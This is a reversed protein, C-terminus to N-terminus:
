TQFVWLFSIQSKYDFYVIVEISRRGAKSQIHSIVVGPHQRFRITIPELRLVTNFISLAYSYETSM